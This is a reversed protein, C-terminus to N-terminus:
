VLVVPRYNNLKSFVEESDYSGCELDLRAAELVANLFDDPIDEIKYGAKFLIEIRDIRHCNPLELYNYRRDKRTILDNDIRYNEIISYREEDIDIAEISLVEKVEAFIIRYNCFYLDEKTFIVKREIVEFDVKLYNQLNSFAGKLRRLLARDQEEDKEPKGIDTKLDTVLADFLEELAEAEEVTREKKVRTIQIM